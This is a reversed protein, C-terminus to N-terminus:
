NATGGSAYKKLMCGFLLEPRIANLQQNTAQRLAPAVIIRGFATSSRIRLNACIAKSADLQATALAASAKSL